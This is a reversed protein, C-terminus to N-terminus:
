IARTKATRALISRMMMVAEIETLSHWEEETLEKDRRLVAPEKCFYNNTTWRSRLSGQYMRETGSIRTDNDLGIRIINMSLHSNREAYQVQCQKAKKSWIHKIMARTKERIAKCEPFSDIVHKNATCTRKGSAHDAIFNAVHMVCTGEEGALDRGTAVSANTTDNVSKYIDSQVIGCRVLVELSAEACAATSHGSLKQIPWM